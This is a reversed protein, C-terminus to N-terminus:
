NIARIASIFSDFNEGRSRFEAEMPAVAAIWDALDDLVIVEVGDAIMEDLAETQAVDDIYAQFTAAAHAAQRVIDQLDTPLAYWWDANFFYFVNAIIHDTITLYSAVDQFRMSHLMDPSAEAGDILGTQLATYIENWDTTTGGAGLHEFMQVYTANPGRMIRGQIDSLQRVPTLTLMHRSGQSQGAMAIFGFPEVRASVESEMGYLVRRFHDNDTYSFPLEFSALEPVLPGLGSGPSAVVMDLAGVRVMEVQEAQSGHEAGFNATAVIRGDSRENVTEVFYSLAQGVTGIASLNTSARLAFVESGDGAVAESGCAVLFLTAAVLLFKYRKM